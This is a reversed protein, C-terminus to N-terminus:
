DRPTVITTPPSTPVSAEPLPATPPVGLLRLGYEAIQSFVPAAVVGGYYPHPEDLVVIISLRPDEVPAFGAFVGTYAGPEYGRVEQSPKRATGTKGAVTYGEVQANAGTGDSVASALMSRMQAATEESVVREGAPTETPKEQGEGDIVSRVLRPPVSTGGNAVTNLAGLMQVANVAVGQGIAISGISTSAWDEVPIVLGASEGPFGLGTSRGFGFRRLYEDVRREGLRQALTITGVNSSQSLVEAVTMAQTPHSSSDSFRKPGVQLSDPVSLVDDPRAVGEELIGSLTVVKSASGPEFVSTLPANNRTPQPEAGEGDSEVSVMALLEGTRTDMVVAMGGGAGTAVVQESLAREVEYQLSRDLTLVLDEGRAAPQLGHQGGAITGGDRGQEVLLEGPEGSLVEDFQREIGSLGQDDVDVDGLVSVALDGAPRFRRPEDRLDVGALDLAEVAAAVEDDIQRALYVFRSGEQALRSRLDAEALDLVPALAAASAAPDHVALPDAWVTHQRVSIALENGNRDFISGRPAPLEVTRLRQAMGREAYADPAVVQLHALRVTVGTFAVLVAM